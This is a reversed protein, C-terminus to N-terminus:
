WRWATQRHHYAVEVASYTKNYIWVGGIKGIWYKSLGDGDVGVGIRLDETPETPLVNDLTLEGGSDITDNIYFNLATGAITATLMTWTNTSYPDTSNESGVTDEHILRLQGNYTYFMFATTPDTGGLTILAKSTAILTQKMWVILTMNPTVDLAANSGCNILDDGDFLRGDPRLLAGTVTCLHGYADDSMFAAGDHKALDAYFVLSPDLIWSEPQVIKRIATRM